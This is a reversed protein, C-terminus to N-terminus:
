DWHVTKIVGAKAKGGGKGDCSFQIFNAEPINEMLLYSTLKKQTSLMLLGFNSKNSAVLSQWEKSFAPNNYSLM